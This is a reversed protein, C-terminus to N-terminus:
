QEAVLFFSANESGHSLAARPRTVHACYLLNNYEVRKVAGLGNQKRYVTHVREEKSMRKCVRKRTERGSGIYDIRM